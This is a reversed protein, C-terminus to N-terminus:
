LAGHEETADLRQHAHEQHLLRAVLRRPKGGRAVRGSIAARRDRADVKGHHLRALLEGRGVDLELRAQVLIQGGGREPAGLLDAQMALAADLADEAEPVALTRADVAAAVDEAVGVHGAGGLEAADDGAHAIVVGALARANQVMRLEREDVHHHRDERGGTDLLHEVVAQQPPRQRAVGAAPDAQFADLVGDLDGLDDVAVRVPQLDDGGGVEGHGLVPEVDAAVVVRHRLFRPQVVVLAEGGLGEAPRVADVAPDPAVGLRLDPDDRRALGPEVGGVREVKEAQVSGLRLPEPDRGVLDAHDPREVHLAEALPRVVELRDDDDLFLALEDLDLDLLRDEVITAAAAHDAPLVLGALRDEGDLLREVGDLDGAGEAVEQRELADLGLGQLGAARDELLRDAGVVGLVQRHAVGPEARAARVVGRGPQGLARAGIGADAAVVHHLPHVAAGLAEGVHAALPRVPDALRREGGALVDELVEAVAGVVVRADLRDAGGEGRAHVDGELDEEVVGDRHGAALRVLAPERRLLDRALQHRHADPRDDADVVRLLVQVEGRERWLHLHALAGVEVGHLTFHLLDGPNGRDDVDLGAGGLLAAAALAAGEGIGVAPDEDVGVDALAAAVAAHLRVADRDQRELGLEAALAGDVLGGAVLVEGAEVAEARAEHGELPGPHLLRRPGFQLQGIERRRRQRRDAAGVVDDDGADAAGADHGDAREDRHRRVELALAGSLHLHRAEGLLAAGDADMAPDGLLGDSIM